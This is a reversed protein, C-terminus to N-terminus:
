GLESLDSVSVDPPAHGAPWPQRRRNVWVTRWGAARAGQVDNLPDDGVYAMERPAIGLRDAVSSFARPDPKAVGIEGASLSVAFLSQLGIRRLDANGNSLTALKFRAALRGLAPLVDAYLEVRNRHEIFVAFAEEAAHAPDGAAVALRRLSETRLWTMDHARDPEARALRTRAARLSEVNHRGALRPYRRELFQMVEADAKAIVGGVEWLTDDLDFCLASIGDLM